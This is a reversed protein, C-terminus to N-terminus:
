LDVKFKLFFRRSVWQESIFYGQLLDRKENSKKRLRNKFLYLGQDYLLSNYGFTFQLVSISNQIFIEVKEVIPNVIDKSSFDITASLVTM